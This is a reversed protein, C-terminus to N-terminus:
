CTAAAQRVAALRDRAVAAYRATQEVGVFSRGSELAAVGTSGSGAFPDLVTGGPACVKVLEAMLEVPKATIHRRANGRPQSHSYLGDLYIPNRAADVQGNTAWLVYECSRRFGGRFPRSTPKHWPVIGRWTWGGAQLADSTAPLQRWDTFVLLPAGAVAVRLCEALIMALWTTYSRQDRCEGAFDALTARTEHADGSVYKDIATGSTRETQTRGGSNYPPDTIVADITAAALTPLILLADGHHITASRTAPM